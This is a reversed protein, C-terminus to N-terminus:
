KSLPEVQAKSLTLYIVGREVRDIHGVPITVTRIHWLHGERLVIHTVARTTPDVTVGDVRGIAGDTAEVREGGRVAVEDEAIDEQDVEVTRRVGDLYIDGASPPTYEVTRAFPPLSEFDARSVRLAVRDPTADAVDEIPVLREAGLVHGRVVVHTLTQDQAEVVVRTVEGIRGDTAEVHAGIHIDM